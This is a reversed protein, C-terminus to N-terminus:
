WTSSWAEPSSARTAAPSATSPSTRDSNPSTGTTANAFMCAWKQPWRGARSRERSRRSAMFPRETSPLPSPRLASGFAAVTRGFRMLSHSPRACQMDVGRRAAADGSGPGLILWTRRESGGSQLQGPETSLLDNDRFTARLRLRLPRPLLQIGWRLGQHKGHRCGGMCLVPCRSNASSRRLGRRAAEDDAVGVAM